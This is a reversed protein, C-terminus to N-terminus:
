EKIGIRFRYGKYFFIIGGPIIEEVKMGEVMAQGEKLIQDNVRTMRNQPDSSYVHASVKFPPLANKIEGPLENVNFIKDTRVAEKKPAAPPEPKVPDPPRAKVVEPTRTKELQQVAVRKEPRNSLRNPAQSLNIAPLRKKIVTLQDQLNYGPRTPAPKGLPRGAASKAPGEKKDPRPPGIWWIMIGANLLLAAIVPYPWLARKKPEREPTGLVSLLKPPAQQERRQEIKKLAELIYSM